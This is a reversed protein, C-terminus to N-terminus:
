ASSAGSALNRWKNNLKNGDIRKVITPVSGVMYLFALRHLEYSKGELQVVGTITDGQKSANGTTILRTFVGTMPDYHVMTKLKTQTLKGM